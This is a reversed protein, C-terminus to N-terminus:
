KGKLIELADFAGAMARERTAYTNQCFENDIAYKWLNGAKVNHYIVVVHGDIKLYENGKKSQKWKRKFFNM